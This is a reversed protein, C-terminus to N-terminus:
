WSMVVIEGCIRYDSFYGVGGVFGPFVPCTGLAALASRMAYIAEKERIYYKDLARWYQDFTFSSMLM